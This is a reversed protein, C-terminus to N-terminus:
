VQNITGRVFAVLTILKQRLNKYLCYASVWDNFWSSAARKQISVFRRGLLWPTPNLSEPVCVNVTVLPLEAAQSM